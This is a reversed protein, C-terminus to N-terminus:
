HVKGFAALCLALLACIGGAVLPWMFCNMNMEAVTGSRYYENMGKAMDRMERGFYWPKMKVYVGGTGSWRPGKVQLDAGITPLRLGTPTEEYTLKLKTLSASLGERLSVDTVGYAAYGLPVYRGVIVTILAHFVVSVFDEPTIPRTGYWELVDTFLAALFIMGAITWGMSILFPKKTVV